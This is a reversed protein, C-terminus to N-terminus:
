RVPGKAMWVQPLLDGRDAPRNASPNVGLRASPVLAFRLVWNRCLFAVVMVLRYAGGSERGQAEVGSQSVLRGAGHPGPPGKVWGKGGYRRCSKKPLSLGKRSEQVTRRRHPRGSGVQLRMMVAM